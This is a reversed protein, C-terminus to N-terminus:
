NTIQNWNRWDIINFVKTYGQKELLNKARSARGGSECFVFIPQDKRKLDKQKLLAEPDQSLENLTLTISGPAPNIKQEMASRIDLGLVKENQYIQQYIALTKQNKSKKLYIFISTIIIIASFIALKKM